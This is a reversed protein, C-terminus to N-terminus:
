NTREENTDTARLWKTFNMSLRCYYHHCFFVPIRNQWNAQKQFSIGLKCECLVPRGPEVVPTSTNIAIEGNYTKILGEVEGGM